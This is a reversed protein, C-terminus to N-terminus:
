DLPNEYCGEVIEDASMLYANAYSAVRFYAGNDRYPRLRKRMPKGCFRGEGRSPKVMYGGGLGRGSGDIASSGIERVVATRGSGSVEVVEYFNVLTMDYGWSCSFVDGVRVVGPAPAADDRTRPEPAGSTVVRYPQGEVQRSLRKAYKGAGAATRYRRTCERLRMGEREDTGIAEVTIM